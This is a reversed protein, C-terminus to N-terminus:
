KFDLEGALISELFFYLKIESSKTICDSFDMTLLLLDTFALQCINTVRIETFSDVM